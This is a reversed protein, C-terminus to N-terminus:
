KFVVGRTKFYLFSTSMFDLSKFSVLSKLHYYQQIVTICYLLTVIWLDISSICLIADMKSCNTLAFSLTSNNWVAHTTRWHLLIIIMITWEEYTDSGVATHDRKCVRFVAPKTWSVRVTSGPNSYQNHRSM